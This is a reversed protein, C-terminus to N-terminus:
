TAPRTGLTLQITMTSGNRLVTLGITQGPAYGALVLDLPHEADLAQGEVAQIIDGEKLGAKAAPGNPIIAPQVTGSADASRILLAGRDVTLHEQTKV